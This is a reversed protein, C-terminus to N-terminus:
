LYKGLSDLREFANQMEVAAMSLCMLPGGHGGLDLDAFELEEALQPLADGVAYYFRRILEHRKADLDKLETQVTKAPKEERMIQFNTTVDNYWTKM